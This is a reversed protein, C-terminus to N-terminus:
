LLMSHYINHIITHIKQKRFQKANHGKKKQHKYSNLLSESPCHGPFMTHKLSSAYAELNKFYLLERPIEEWGYATCVGSLTDTELSTSMDHSSSWVSTHALNGELYKTLTNNNINTVWKEWEKERWWRYIPVSMSTKDFTTTSEWQIISRM